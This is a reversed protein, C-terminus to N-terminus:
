ADRFSGKFKDTLMRVIKSHSKEVNKETLTKSQSRYTISLAVSKFGSQIKDGQFIDFIESSEVLKDKSSRVVDLLKGSSINVPVILAIDRKVSPYVPLPIFNKGPAKLECLADYNLDYYYVTHKIGFNKM